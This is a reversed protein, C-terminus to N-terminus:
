SHEAVLSQAHIIVSKKGMELTSLIANLRQKHAGVVVLHHACKPLQPHVLVLLGDTLNM